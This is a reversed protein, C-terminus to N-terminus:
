RRSWVSGVLASTGAAVATRRARAVLRLHPGVPVEEDVLELVGVGALHVEDEVDPLAEAGPEEDDTVHLLPM